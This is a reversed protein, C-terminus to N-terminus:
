GKDQMKVFKKTYTDGRSFVTVSYAGQPVSRIDVPDLQNFNEGSVSYVVRGTMDTIVFKEVDEKVQIYIEDGAPNPYLNMFKDKTEDMTGVLTIQVANSFATYANFEFKATYLGSYSPILYNEDGVTYAVPNGDRYWTYNRGWPVFLTDNLYILPIMEPKDYIQHQQMRGNFPHLNTALVLYQYPDIITYFNTYDPGETVFPVIYTQHNHDYVCLQTNLHSGYSEIDSLKNMYPECPDLFGFTAEQHCIIEGTCNNTVLGQASYSNGNYYQSPVRCKTEGTSADLVLYYSGGQYDLYVYENRQPVYTRVQGFIVANGNEINRLLTSKMTTLDLSYFSGYKEYPLRNHLFDYEINEPYVPYSTIQLTNLDIIHFKGEHGPITGGFFYRGNFRDIATRFELNIYPLGGFDILTDAEETYPNFSVFYKDAFGYIRQGDSEFPVTFFLLLFPLWYKMNLYLFPQQNNSLLCTM